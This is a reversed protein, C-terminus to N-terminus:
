ALRDGDELPPYGLAERKENITLIDSSGIRKWRADREGSLAEIRNLDPRLNVGAKNDQGKGLWHGLAHSTRSVLPLVTARWFTRNAESFNAFTNDGPIGLLMPPVGLALAIERAATHKTEIFDMDRPSYGINKWDLGGELLLPRGANQSGFFSDELEDRLRKFQDTTLQGNESRYVLAGSPRASNDLLAKNWHDNDPHFLKMHLIPPQGDANQDFSVSRGGVSYQYGDPWGNEGPVVKM